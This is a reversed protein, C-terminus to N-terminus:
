GLHALAAEERGPQDADTLRRSCIRELTARLKARIRFLRSGVTRLRMRFRTAIERYSVDQFYALEFIARDNPRLDGLAARIDAGDLLDLPDLPGAAAEQAPEEDPPTASVLRMSSRRREDIFLNRMIATTWARFNTGPRFRQRNLLAREITDQVLDDASAQSQTWVLARAKLAARQAALEAAFPDQVGNVELLAHKHCDM